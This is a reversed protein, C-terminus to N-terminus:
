HYRRLQPGGTDGEISVGNFDERVLSIPDFNEIKTVKLGFAPGWCGPSFYADFKGSFWAGSRAGTETEKAQKQLQQLWQRAEESLAMEDELILRTLNAEIGPSCGYLYFQTTTTDAVIRAHFHVTTNHFLV